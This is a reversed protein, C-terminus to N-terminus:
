KRAKVVKKRYKFTIIKDQRAKGSKKKTRATFGKKKLPKYSYKQGKKYTKQSRMHRLMLVNDTDYYEDYVTIVYKETTAAYTKEAYPMFVCMLTLVTVVLLSIKKINKM